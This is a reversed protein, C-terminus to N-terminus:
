FDDKLCLLDLCLESQEKWELEVGQLKQKDQLGLAYQVM